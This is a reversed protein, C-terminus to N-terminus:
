FYIKSNPTKTNCQMAKPKKYSQAYSQLTLMPVANSKWGIFCYAEYWVKFNSFRSKLTMCFPIVRIALLMSPHVLPHFCQFLVNLVISFSIMKELTLSDELVKREPLERVMVSHTSFTYMFRIYSCALLIDVWHTHTRAVILIAGLFWYPSEKWWVTRVQISITFYIVALTYRAKQRRYSDSM